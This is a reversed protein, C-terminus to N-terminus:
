DKLNFLKKLFEIGDLNKHKANDNLAKTPSHLFKKTLNKSLKDLVQEVPVGKKLDKEMKKVESIRTQEFKNNLNKIYPAVTKQQLHSMFEECQQQILLEAKATEKERNKINKETIKALDDFTYLFIDDLAAVEPEIDRPIALDILLMPKHKRLRIAKEIMGLGIIPLQSSTSSIVIDFSHMTHHIDGILM